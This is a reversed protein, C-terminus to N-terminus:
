LPSSRAATMEAYEGIGKVLDRTAHLDVPKILYSNVGLAIARDLDAPDSSSTLM